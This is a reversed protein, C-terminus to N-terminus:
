IFKLIVKVDTKSLKLCKKNKKRFFKDTKQQEIDSAISSSESFSSTESFKVSKILRGSLETNKNCESTKKISFEDDDSNSDSVFDDSYYNDERNTLSRETKPACLKINLGDMTKITISSNNWQKRRNTPASKCRDGDNDCNNNEKRIHLKPVFNVAIQRKNKNKNAASGSILHRPTHREPLKHEGNVYLSFGSEKQELKVEKEDKENLVRARRKFIFFLSLQLLKASLTTKKEFIEVRLYFEISQESLCNLVRTM